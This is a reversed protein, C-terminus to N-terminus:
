AFSLAYSAERNCSSCVIGALGSSDTRPYRAGARDCNDCTAGHSSASRSAPRAAHRAAIHGYAMQTGDVAFSAGVRAITEHKVTGDKKTVAIIEGERLDAAPAMVAWEGQRTKRYAAANM